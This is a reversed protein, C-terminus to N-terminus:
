FGNLKLNNMLKCTNGVEIMHHREGKVVDPDYHEVQGDPGTEVFAYDDSAELVLLAMAPTNM